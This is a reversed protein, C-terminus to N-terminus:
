LLLARQKSKEDATVLFVRWAPVVHVHMRWLDNIFAVQFRFAEDVAHSDRGAHRYLRKGIDSYASDNGVGGRVSEVTCIARVPNTLCSERLKGPM